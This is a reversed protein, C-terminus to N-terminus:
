SPWFIVTDGSTSVEPSALDFLAGNVTFGITSPIVGNPDEVTFIIEFSDCGVVAGDPPGVINCIPGRLNVYFEWCEELVNPGCGTAMDEARVCVEVTDDHEFEWGLLEGDLSLHEGDWAADAIYYDVGNLTIRISAENLGSLDDAIRFSVTPAPVGAFGGDPPIRDWVRPPSQDIVIEFEIPAGDNGFTDKVRGFRVTLTEGDAVPIDPFFFLTDGSLSMSMPFEYVSAGVTLLISMTDIGSTDRLIFAARLSDCSLFGSPPSIMTAEPGVNDVYFSWCTDAINAGCGVARDGAVACIEVEGSLSLGRASTTLSLRETTGNWSLGTEGWSVTDGDIVWKFLSTQIGSTSDRVVAIIIPTEDGIIAGPAPSLTTFIPPRFDATFVFTTDGTRPCARDLTRLEEVLGYYTIGHTWCHEPGLFYFTSDSPDFDARSPGYITSNVNFYASAIDIPDDSDVKWSVDGCSCSYFSSIPPYLLELEPTPLDFHFSISHLTPAHAIDRSMLVRFKYFPGEAVSPPIAGGPAVITWPTWLVGDVSSALEITISSEGPVSMVAGMEVLGGPCPAFFIASTYVGSGLGGFYSYYMANIMAKGEWPAPRFSTGMEEEAHGTSFYSAHSGYHPSHYTHMYIENSPGVFWIQGDVFSEGFEHCATIDFREPLEFPTNLITADAPASPHRTVEYYLDWAANNSVWEADLGTVDVITNFNEHVFTGVSTSGFPGRRKAITDHTLVIGRGLGAFDRVRQKGRSNLDSGSGGYGNAIGFYVIDYDMLTQTFTTSTVPNEASFPATLSDIRNWNNLTIVDIRFNLPPSGHPALSDVTWHLCDKCHGSPYVQLVRITDFESLTLAASPFAPDPVILINHAEGASFDDLSTFEIDFPVAFVATVITCLIFFRRLQEM